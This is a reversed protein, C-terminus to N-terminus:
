ATVDDMDFIKSKYISITDKLEYIIGERQDGTKKKKEYLSM